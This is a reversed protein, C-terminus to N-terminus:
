KSIPSHSTEEFMTDEGDSSELEESISDSPSAATLHEPLLQQQGDGPSQHEAIDEMSHHSTVPTISPLSSSIDSQLDQITHSQDDNPTHNKNDMIHDDKPIPSLCDSLTHSIPTYNQDDKPTHSQDVSLAYSQGDSPTHSHLSSHSIVQDTNKNARHVPETPLPPTPQSSSYSNTWKLAVEVTGNSDGAEQPDSPCTCIYYSPTCM